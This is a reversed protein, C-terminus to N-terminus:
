DVFHYRYLMPNSGRRIEIQASASRSLMPVVQKFVTANALIMDDIAVITDANQLGLLSYVSGPAVDFLRYEPWPLRGGSASAFVEVLRARNTLASEKIRNSFDTRTISLEVIEYQPAIPRLVSLRRENPVLSDTHRSACGVIGLAALLIIVTKM